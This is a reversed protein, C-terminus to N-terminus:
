WNVRIHVILILKTLPQPASYLRWVTVEVGQQISSWRFPGRWHNSRTKVWIPEGRIGHLEIDYCLVVMVVLRYLDLICIVGLDLVCIGGFRLSVAGESVNKKRLKLHSIIVGKLYM